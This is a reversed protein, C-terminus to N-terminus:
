SKERSEYVPLSQDKMEQENEDDEDRYDGEYVEKWGPSEVTKGSAAFVYGEAEAEMSTQEYEFAPYLVSLFRRVVM